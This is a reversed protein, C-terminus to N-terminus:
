VDYIDCLIDYSCKWGWSRLHWIVPMCTMFVREQMDSLSVVLSHFQFTILSLSALLHPMRECLNVIESQVKRSV